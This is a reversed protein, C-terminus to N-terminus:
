KNRKELIFEYPEFNFRLPDSSFLLERDEDRLNNVFSDNDRRLKVEISDFCSIIITFDEDLFECGMERSTSVLNLIVEFMEPDSEELRIENEGLIFVNVVFSQSELNPNIYINYDNLKSFDMDLSNKKFLEHILYSIDSFFM